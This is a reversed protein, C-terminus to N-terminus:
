GKEFYQFGLVCHESENVNFGLWKLWTKAVTNDKHVYNFIKKPYQDKMLAVERKCGRVFERSIDNIGDTSLMWVVGEHPIGSPTLGYIMVAVGDVTVAKCYKSELFGEIVTIEPRIKDKYAKLEDIDGQRLNHAVHRADDITADRILPKSAM